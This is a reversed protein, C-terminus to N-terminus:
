KKEKKGPLRKRLADYESQHFEFYICDSENQIELIVADQRIKGGNANKISSTYNIYKGYSVVDNMDCVIQGKPNMWEADFFILKGDEEKIYFRQRSQTFVVKLPTILKCMPLEPNNVLVLEESVSRLASNFIQDNQKGLLPRVSDQLDAATTIEPIAEMGGFLNFFAVKKQSITSPKGAAKLYEKKAMLYRYVLRGILVAFVGALVLWTTRQQKEYYATLLLMGIVLSFSIASFMMTAVDPPAAEQADAYRSYSREFANSLMNQARVNYQKTEEVHIM